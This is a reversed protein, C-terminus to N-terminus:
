KKLKKCLTLLISKIIRRNVLVAVICGFIINVVNLALTNIWCIACMLVLLVILLCFRGTNFKVKQFKQVDIMRYITLFAYSILTSVSAAFIGIKHVFVLDIILNCAAAFITTAGVSRTKKHAVYIGGIFSAMSSFLMGIFLIPMQYYAEKYDGRILFWFLIPTAAILLAMVGVLIGFISDFMEAYYTDADSDKSALSANEQWAFVFTGQVATFLAPIKNAVSYIANAELGMFATLVARDSFSLVWNSLSNPIMPWSYSLMELQTKKSLLSLDIRSLIHGKVILLILGITKAITISALVGVLGQKWVSITLVILFMNTFSIIVSSVSYLKNYSLGRVIQQTSLMLIDSFFYICILWSIVPSMNGLFFYLIALAIFSTPLIFSIINTIIRKTEKEDHRVDILFRFAASQIQLTAIPLFLSVLTSIIDYTGMEAKSLGGTIIPLTIISSFMPLFTGISIIFTNKVLAKERNM